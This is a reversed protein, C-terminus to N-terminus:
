QPAFYKGLGDRNLLGTNKGFVNKTFSSGWEFSLLYVNLKTSKGDIASFRTSNTSFSAYYTQAYVGVKQNNSFNQAFDGNATNCGYFVAYPTSIIGVSRGNIKGMYLSSGFNLRPAELLFQSGGGGAMVPGGSTGHSYMHLQDVHSYKLWEKWAAKLDDESDIRRVIIDDEKIGHEILLKRKTYAARAFSSEKTFIDWDVEGKNNTYDALDSRGYSWALIYVNGSPDIYLIPNNACYTYRNLSLPDRIDGEYTDESLMRSTVPDYYRARLYVLGSEDDFYEGCYGFPNHAKEEERQWTGDINVYGNNGLREGFASYEYEEDGLGIVDGHANFTFYSKENHENEMAILRLGRYYQYSQVKEGYVQESTISGNNYNFATKVGDVTKSARLGDYRY